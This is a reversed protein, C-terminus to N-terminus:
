QMIPQSSVMNMIEKVCPVTIYYSRLIDSMAGVEPLNSKFYGMLGTQGSKTPCELVVNRDVFKNAYMCKYVTGYM